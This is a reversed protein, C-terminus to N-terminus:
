RRKLVRSSLKDFLTRSERAQEIERTANSRLARVYNAFVVREHTLRRQHVILAARLARTEEEALVRRPTARILRAIEDYDNDLTAIDSGSSNIRVQPENVAVAYANAIAQLTPDQTFLTNANAIATVLDEISSQSNPIAMTGDPFTATPDANLVVFGCDPFENPTRLAEDINATAADVVKAPGQQPWWHMARLFELRQSCFATDWVRNTLLAPNPSSPASAVATAAPPNQFLEVAADVEQKSAFTHPYQVPDIDGIRVILDLEQALGARRQHTVPSLPEIAFGATVPLNIPRFPAFVRFTADPIRRRLELETVRLQVHADIRDTDFQGWLGICTTDGSTM